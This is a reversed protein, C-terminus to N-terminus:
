DKARPNSSFDNTLDATHDTAVYHIEDGSM